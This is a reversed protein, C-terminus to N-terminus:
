TKNPEIHYTGTSLPAFYTVNVCACESLLRFQGNNSTGIVGRFKKPGSYIKIDSQSLNRLLNREKTSLEIKQSNEFYNKQSCSQTFRLSHITVDNWSEGIRDRDSADVALRAFM